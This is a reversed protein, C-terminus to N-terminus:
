FAKEFFSFEFLQVSSSLSIKTDFTDRIIEFCQNCLRSLRTHINRWQDLKNECLLRPMCHDTRIQLGRRLGM